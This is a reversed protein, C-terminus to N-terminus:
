KPFIGNKVIAAESLFTVYAQVLLFPEEGFPQAKDKTNKEGRLSRPPVCPWSPSRDWLEQGCWVRCSAAHLAGRSCCPAPKHGSM